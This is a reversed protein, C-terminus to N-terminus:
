RENLRLASRVREEQPGVEGAGPTQLVTAQALLLLLDGVEGRLQEQEAAPLRRVVARDQWSPNDVVRYLDLARRCRAIGEELHQRATARPHLPFRAAKMGAHFRHLSDRAELDASRRSVVVATTTACLLLVGATVAVTTTSTLRPHRRLWKHARERWSPEPA